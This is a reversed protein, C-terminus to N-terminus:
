RITEVGAESGKVPRVGCAAAASGAYISIDDGAIKLGADGMQNGEPLPLPVFPGKKYKPSIQREQVKPVDFVNDRLILQNEAVSFQVSDSSVFVNREFTMEECRPMSISMVEESIFINNRYVNGAAMHNQSPKAVNISINNEVLAHDSREDLYYAAIKPDAKLDRVVNNRLVLNKCFTAYLAAGDRLEQMVCYVKNYEVTHQGGGIGIGAYTGDHIENHRILAHTEDRGFEWEDVMNPDTSGVYLAIASPYTVGVHHIHNNEIRAHSGILRLGGAGVDHLHCNTVAIYDGFLKLGWGTVAAIDLNEFTCHNSNEASVAGGFLKAAFDGKMLPTNASRISIGRLTINDANNLCVVNELVPAIVEATDMNEGPLPWYVLRGGVRDLYWQGPQTMGKKVNWVVYDRAGFSGIPHGSPTSCILARTDLDISEVGVLTEDWMHYITLEANEPELWEGLDGAKFILKTLEDRSPEKEWLGESTSVHKGKFMTEHKLRGADPYRARPASRGNVLLSRFNWEGSQVEPLDAVWFGNEGLRWGSIERGGFLVPVEGAKAEVVLGADREDLLLPKELFYSGGGLVIKKCSEGTYKRSADLAAELSCFDVSGGAARLEVVGESPRVSASRCGALVMSMVFVFVVCRIFIRM